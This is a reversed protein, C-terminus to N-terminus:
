IDSITSVFISQALLITTNVAGTLALDNNAEEEASFQINTDEEDDESDM